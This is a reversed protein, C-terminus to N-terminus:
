ASEDFTITAFAIKGSPAIQRAGNASYPSGVETVHPMRSIRALLQNMRHQVAVDRVTGRSVAVVLRDVDGAVRPASRELLSMAQFSQTQPLSFNDQYSSGIARTAITSGVLAVMWLAIVLLRHRYCWRAAARM